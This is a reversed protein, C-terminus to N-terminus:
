LRLRQAWRECIIQEEERITDDMWVQATPSVKKALTPLAPYRSFLCTAGPPGDVWIFDVSDIDCLLPEPYWLSPKEADPPNLHDHDWSQLKGIRLDVWSELEQHKLWSITLAGYHDSHEISILQGTGNQRLADAIVLTSSGSGFEVVIRPRTSMIHMHLKL